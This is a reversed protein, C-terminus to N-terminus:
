DKAADPQSTEEQTPEASGPQDADPLTEPGQAEAQPAPAAPGEGYLDAINRAHREPSIDDREREDDTDFMEKMQPTLRVYKACRKLATKRSMEVVDTSWPGEDHAPARRRVADIQELTMVEVHTTGDKLMVAGYYFRIKGAERNLVAHPVHHYQDAFYDLAFDDGEYVPHAFARKVKGTRELALCIGFYNPVYTAQINGGKRNKFPLIHCDRGPLLGYMAAKIVSDRLSTQSCNALTPRGSLELYLAARFQEVTIDLPLLDPIQPMLGAMTHVLAPALASQQAVAKERYSKQLVTDTM